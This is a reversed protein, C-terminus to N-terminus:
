LKADRRVQDVFTIVLHPPVLTKEGVGVYRFEDDAYYDSVKMVAQEAAPSSNVVLGLAQAEKLAVRLNHGINRAQELTVGKSLLYAKLYNELAQFANLFTPWKPEKFGENAFKATELYEDGLRAFVHRSDNGPFRGSPVSENPLVALHPKPEKSRKPKSM